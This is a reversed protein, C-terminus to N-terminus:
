EADPERSEGEGFLRTNLLSDAHGLEALAESIIRRQQELRTIMAKCTERGVKFQLPSIDDEAAQIIMVIDGLVLGAKRCKIIFAIRECDGWGYVRVGDLSHRRSILGRFEYYRLMFQSVRFMRAVNEISLVGEPPSVGHGSCTDDLWVVETPPTDDNGRNSM